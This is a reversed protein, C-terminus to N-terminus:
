CRFIGVIEVTIWGILSCTRGQSSEELGAGSQLADQFFPSRHCRDGGGRDTFAKYVERAAGGLVESSLIM